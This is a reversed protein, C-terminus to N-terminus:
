IKIKVKGYKSVFNKAQQELSQLQQSETIDKIIEFKGNVRALRPAGEKAKAIAEEETNAKVTVVEDEYDEGNRWTYGVTYEKETRFKNKGAPASLTIDAKRALNQMAQDYDSENENMKTIFNTGDVMGGRNYPNAADGVNKVQQYFYGDRNVTTVIGMVEGSKTRVKIYDGVRLDPLENENLVKRIEEKIIQKLESKKM